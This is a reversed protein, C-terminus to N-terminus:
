GWAVRFRMSTPTVEAIEARSSTIGAVALGARYATAYSPALEAPMLHAPGHLTITGTTGVVDVEQTVGRHFTSWAAGIARVTLRAGLLGFVARYLPQALLARNVEYSWQEFRAADGDCRVELALLWLAESHVEPVWVTGPPPAEVFRRLAEPLEPALAVIGPWGDIVSRAISAKGVYEPYSDLGAPLRALYADLIRFRSM